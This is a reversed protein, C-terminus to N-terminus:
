NIRRRVNEIQKSERDLFSTGKLLRSQMPFTTRLSNLESDVKAVQCMENAANPFFARAADWSFYFWLLLISAVGTIVWYWGGFAKAPNGFVTDTVETRVVRRGYIVSWVFAILLFIFLAAVIYRVIGPSDM